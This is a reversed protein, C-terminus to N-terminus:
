LRLKGRGRDVAQIPADAVQKIGSRLADAPADGVPHAAPDLSYWISFIAGIATWLLYKPRM